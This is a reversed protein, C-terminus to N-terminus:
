GGRGDAGIGGSGDRGGGAGLLAKKKIYGRKRKRATTQEAAGEVNEVSDDAMQELAEQAEASDQESRKASRDM